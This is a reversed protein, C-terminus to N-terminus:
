HFIKWHKVSSATLATHLWLSSVRWLMPMDIPQVVLHKPSHRHVATWLNNTSWKRDLDVHLAALFVLHSSMHAYLHTIRGSHSFETFGHALGLPNHMALFLTSHSVAEHAAVISKVLWFVDHHFSANNTGVSM